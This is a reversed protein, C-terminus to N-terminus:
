AAFRDDHAHRTAYLPTTRGRRVNRQCCGRATHRAESSGQRPPKLQDKVCGLNVNIPTPKLGVLLDMDACQGPQSHDQLHRPTRARRVRRLLCLTRSSDAAGDQCHASAKRGAATDPRWPRRPPLRAGFRTEWSRLVAAIPLSTQFREPGCWGVAPLVDAARGVPVLAIPAPPLSRLTGHLQAMSLRGDEAPALGPFQRSFPVRMASVAHDGEWFDDEDEDLPMSRDWLTALVDAADLHDLDAIDAPECFYFDADQERGTLLVPVLGTQQRTDSLASWALGADPVPQATVWAVPEGPGEWPVIRRGPPLVVAGIRAPGDEPLSGTAMAWEKRASGHDDSRAAAEGPLPLGARGFTV